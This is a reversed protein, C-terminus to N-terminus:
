CAASAPSDSSPFISMTQALAPMPEQATAQSIVSCCHFSMISMLRVPTNLVTRAVSGEITSRPSPPLTTSVLEM